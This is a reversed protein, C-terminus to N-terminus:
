RIPRAGRASGVGADKGSAGATGSDPPEGLVLAVSARPPGAKARRSRPLRVQLRVGLGIPAITASCSPNVASRQGTVLPIGRPPVRIGIDPENPYATHSKPPPTISSTAGHEWVYDHPLSTQM